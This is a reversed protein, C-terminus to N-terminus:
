NNVSNTNEGAESVIISLAEEPTLDLNRKKYGKIRDDYGCISRYSCYTCSDSNDRVYPNVSIDGDLINKGFEKIKRGVFSSIAQYEERTATQSRAGFEGDKKIMVPIIDSTGSIDKDLLKVIDMNENVLGTMKLKDIVAKNIDDTIMGEKGDVVPDTVHYYLIAAPVVEKGPSLKKQVAGAVNM